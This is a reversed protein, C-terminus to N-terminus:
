AGLPHKCYIPFTHVSDFFILSFTDGDRQFMEHFKKLFSDSPLWPGVLEIPFAVVLCASGIGVVTKFSVDLELVIEGAMCVM